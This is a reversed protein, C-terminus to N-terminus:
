LELDPVGIEDLEDLAVHTAALVRKAVTKRM